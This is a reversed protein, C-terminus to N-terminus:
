VAQMFLLIRMHMIDKQMFMCFPCSRNDSFKKFDIQHKESQISTQLDLSPKDRKKIGIIKDPLCKWIM